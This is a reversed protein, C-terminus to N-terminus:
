GLRSLLRASVEARASDTAKNDRDTDTLSEAFEDLAGVIRAQKQQWATHVRHFAQAGEGGWQSGIGNIQGTLTQSLATVDARAQRVHETAARLAGEVASLEQTNEM